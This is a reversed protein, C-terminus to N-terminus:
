KPAILELSPTGPKHSLFPNIIRQENATLKEYISIKIEPKFKVLEDAAMRGATKAIEDLASEIHVGNIEAYTTWNLKKECKLEWGNGLKYRETGKEKASDFLGLENVIINRLELEKAKAAELNSKAANWEMLLQDRNLTAQNSM